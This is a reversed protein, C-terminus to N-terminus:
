RSIIYSLKFKHNMLLIKFTFKELFTEAWVIKKDVNVRKEKM